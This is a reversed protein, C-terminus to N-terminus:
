FTRRKNPGHYRKDSPSSILPDFIRWGHRSQEEVEKVFALASRGFKDTSHESTVWVSHFEHFCHDDPTVPYRPALFVDPVRIQHAIFLGDGLLANKLSKEVARALLRDPNAFILEGWNKYNSADRYLYRLRLNEM